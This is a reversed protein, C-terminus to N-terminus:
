PPKWGTVPWSAKKKMFLYIFVLWLTWFRCLLCTQVSFLLWYPGFGHSYELHNLLLKSNVRPEVPVPTKLLFTCAYGPHFRPLVTKTYHRVSNGFFSQHLGDSFWMQAFCAWYLVSSFWSAKSFCKAIWFLQWDLIQADRTGNTHSNALERLKRYKTGRSKERIKEQWCTWGLSEM